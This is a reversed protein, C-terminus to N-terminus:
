EHKGGKAGKASDAMARLADLEVVLSQEEDDSWEHERTQELILLALGEPDHAALELRWKIGEPVPRQGYEYKRYTGEPLHLREAMQRVSLSLRLREERLEAPTM